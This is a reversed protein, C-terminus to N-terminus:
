QLILFPHAAGGQPTRSEDEVPREYITAELGGPLFFTNGLIAPYLYIIGKIM